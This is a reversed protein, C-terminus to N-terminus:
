KSKELIIGNELREFSEWAIYRADSEGPVQVAVNFPKVEGNIQIIIGFCGDALICSKNYESLDFIM